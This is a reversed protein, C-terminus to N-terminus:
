LRHSNHLSELFIPVSVVVPAPVVPVPVRSFFLQNVGKDEECLVSKNELVFLM